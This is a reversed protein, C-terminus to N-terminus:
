EFEGAEEKGMRERYSALGRMDQYQDQQCSTQVTDLDVDSVPHVAGGESLDHFEASSEFLFPFLLLPFRSLNTQDAKKNDPYKVLELM